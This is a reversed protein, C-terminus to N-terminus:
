GRLFQLKRIDASLVASSRQVKVNSASMQDLTRLLLGHKLLVGREQGKKSGIDSELLSSFNSPKLFHISSEM